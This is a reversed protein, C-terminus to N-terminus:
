CYDKYVLANFNITYLMRDNIVGIRMPETEAYIYQVFLPTDYHYTRIGIIGHITDFVGFAIREAREFDEHQIVVQYNVHRGKLDNRDPMDGGDYYVAGYNGDSTKYDVSWELDNFKPELKDKIYEQIM